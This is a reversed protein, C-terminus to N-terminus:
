QNIYVKKLVHILKNSQNYTSFRESVSDRAAQGMEKRHEPDRLALLYKKWDRASNAFYGNIGHNIIGEYSPIPTAIVPLAMSMMMTLRNESKIKWTPIVDLNSVKKDIPIMGICSEIMERYVGEPSWPVCCIRSDFLFRLYSMREKFKMESLTWFIQRWESFGHSYRGVIRLNLWAPLNDLVPLQTLRSSTVLVARLPHAQTGKSAGWDCKYIEPREIGDHVVYIRDQLLKPYLSKLYETVIVTADTAEVMSVDILDCVAFVTRIGSIALEKALAIANPGHVKQMVVVQCGTKIAQAAVGELVPTETPQPAEFLIHTHLGSDQLHPLINLVAIRTSPLPNKVSSCLVFGVHKLTM